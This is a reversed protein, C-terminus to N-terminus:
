KLVKFIKRKVFYDYKCALRGLFLLFSVNKCSLLIYVLKFKIKRKEKIKDIFELFDPTKIIQEILKKKQEKSLLNKKNSINALYSFYQKVYSKLVYTNDYNCSIYIDEIEKVLNLKIQNSDTRFRFGLGSKSIRYKYLPKNLYYVSENAKLYKLVFKLDEAISIKEDFLINNDKIIASTFLKNWLQNFLGNPQLKEIIENFKSSQFDSKLLVNSESKNFNTYGCIILNDEHKQSIKLMEELFNPHYLDDSDIFCIKNGISNKIAFNRSYSVGHNENIFYKINLRNKIKDRIVENSKDTSGDNVIIVEYNKYTQNFISDLTEAITKESNYVPLIISILDKEQM